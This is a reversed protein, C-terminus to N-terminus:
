DDQSTPVNSTLFDDLTKLLGSELDTNAQWGLLRKAKTTDSYNRMVDGLRPETYEPASFALGRRSFTASLLETLETLNTEQNTAIQFVEGSINQTLAALKVAEILDDLYIYDRTQLGNGYIQIPQGTLANSIFKAVVSTKHSSGPGYVNGFRLAVTEIGFCKAYASCYGEGALKSAGYPSVPKPALEEHIPPEVEGIPAGSSAFIFRRVGNARASELLILTGLVNTTCDFWPDEVSPGVGTNAALHVIAECGTCVKDMAVRDTIDAEIFELGRPADKIDDPHLSRFSIGNPLADTSGTSLNDVVRIQNQGASFLQEVLRSGIFGCGGTILWKM